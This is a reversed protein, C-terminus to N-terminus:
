RDEGEVVYKTGYAVGAWDTKDRSACASVAAAVLAVILLLKMSTEPCLFVAKHRIPDTATTGLPTLGATTAGAMAGLPVPIQDGPIEVVGAAM